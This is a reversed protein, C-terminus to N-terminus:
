HKGVNVRAEKNYVGHLIHTYTINNANVTGRGTGM